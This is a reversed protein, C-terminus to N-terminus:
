EGAGVLDDLSGKWADDAPWTAAKGGVVLSNSLLARAVSAFVPWILAATM